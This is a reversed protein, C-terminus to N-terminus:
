VDTLRAEAIARLLEGVAWAQSIGGRPAHPRDGDFLESVSGLCGEQLHATLFSLKKKLAAQTARTLGHVRLLTSVYPGWLWTWVTGQHYALARAQPEGEYRGRYHPHNVSLTRIGVPTMLLRETVELAKRVQAPSLPSFPLSAAILANPRIAQDPGQGTVRDYLLGQPSSFTRVFNHQILRSLKRYTAAKRLSLREGIAGTVSVACYWLANIEVPKGFRPTVPLGPVGAKESPLRADMWTLPLTEERLHLLGDEDMGMGLNIGELYGEIIQRMPDLLRKAVFKLDKTAKLYHWIAWFFWLSTDASDYEPSGDAESLSVPILGDKVQGALTSLLAKASDYQRTALFLGPLAILTDRGWPPLAPLGALLFTEKASRSALFNEATWSLRRVVPGQGPPALNQALVQQTNELRREHFGLDVGGQRGTSAVLACSEGVKLLYLFHGFSWLDEKVPPEEPYEFNKYWCPSHEVLEATHHFVLPPMEEELRLSLTGASEEMKPRLQPDERRLGQFDRLATLPRILLEIPGPASLLTYGVVVANEGPLLFVTKALAIEGVRYLFTPWPDLRFEALYRWGEPHVMGAYRNIALEFRGAPSVITEEVKSLFLVRGVPPRLAAVLLGHSRRTNMGLITSSAYGGLGNTVIWEKLAARALDQCAETGFLIPTLGALSSPPSPPWSFDEELIGGKSIHSGLTRM